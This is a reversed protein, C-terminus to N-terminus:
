RTVWSLVLRGTQLKLVPSRVPDEIKQLRQDNTFPSLHITTYTEGFEFIERVVVCYVVAYTGLM